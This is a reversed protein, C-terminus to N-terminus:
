ETTTTVEQESLWDDVTPNALNISPQVSDARYAMEYADEQTHDFPSRVIGKFRLGTHKLFLQADLNSERVKAFLTKRRQKKLRAILHKIIATGVKQRRRKPCVAMNLIETSDRHLEYIAYGVVSHTRENFATLGICNRQRLACLFEEESWAFEFSASEIEVVESIDRRIMWRCDIGDM